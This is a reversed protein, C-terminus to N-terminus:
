FVSMLLKWLLFWMATVLVLDIGIGSLKWALSWKYKHWCFIEHSIFMFLAHTTILITGIWQIGNM